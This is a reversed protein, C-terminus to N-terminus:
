SASLEDYAVSLNSPLRNDRGRPLHFDPFGALNELTVVEEKKKGAKIEAAVHDLLASLYDRFFLVDASNGTTAFKENTHGFLYITDKPYTAAIKELVKVWHRIDAGGPRDIV